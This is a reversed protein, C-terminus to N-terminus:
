RLVGDPAATLPVHSFGVADVFGFQPSAIRPVQKGALLYDRLLAPRDAVDIRTWGERGTAMPGHLYVHPYEALAEAADITARLRALATRYPDARVINFPHFSVQLFPRREALLAAIAPLVAYEAGEVDIKLLTAADLGLEDLLAAAARVPVEAELQGHLVTGREVSRFVSSGSDAYGKRYLAASGDLAGVAFPHVEIRDALEPNLAVNARLLSQHSPSAEVAHVEAVQTAAYLSMFGVYAGVDIVQRCRPLAADFFGLTAAEADGLFAAMGDQSSPHDAVRFRRDGRSVAHARLNALM